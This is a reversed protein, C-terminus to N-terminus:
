KCKFNTPKEREQCRTIPKRLFLQMKLIVHFFIMHLTHLVCQTYTCVTLGFLFGNSFNINEYQNVNELVESQLTASQNISISYPTQFMVMGLFQADSHRFSIPFSIFRMLYSSSSIPSFSLFVGFSM